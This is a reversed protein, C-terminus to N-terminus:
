NESNMITDVFNVLDIKWMIIVIQWKQLDHFEKKPFLEQFLKPGCLKKCNKVM